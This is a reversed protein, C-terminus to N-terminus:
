SSKLLRLGGTYAMVPLVGRVINNDYSFFSRCLFTLIFLLHRANYLMIFILLEITTLKSHDILM